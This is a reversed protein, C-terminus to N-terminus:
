VWVFLCSQCSEHYIHYALLQPRWRGQERVLLHPSAKTGGGDGLGEARWRPLRQFSCRGAEKARSIIHFANRYEKSCKRKMCICICVGFILNNKSTREETQNVCPFHAIAYGTALLRPHRQLPM